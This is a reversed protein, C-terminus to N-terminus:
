RCAITKSEGPELSVTGSVHFNHFRSDTSISAKVACETPNHLELQWTSMDSALTLYCGVEINDCHVPHGIFLDKGSEADGLAVYATGKEVPVLRIRGDPIALVASRNDSLGSLRLGLTGPLDGLGDFTEVIAGDMATADRIVGGQPAFVAYKAKIERAYSDPDTVGKHMGCLVAKFECTTGKRAVSPSQSPVGFKSREFRVETLPFIALSGWQSDKAVLCDGPKMAFTKNFANSITEGDIHANLSVTNKSLRLNGFYALSSGDSPAPIDRKLTLTQEWQYPVIGDIKPLFLSCRATTEAWPCDEVPLLSRWVHIVDRESLPFTGDLVRDAVLANASAVVRRPEVHPGGARGAVFESVWGISAPKEDGYAISPTFKVQPHDDPSGDFGGSGGIGWKKDFVFCGVPRVRGTWPGKDCLCTEGGRQMVFPPEGNGRKQTSVLYQNMRDGCNWESFLQTVCGAARTFAEGGMLDWAKVWYHHQRENALTGSIAFEKRGNGQWRRVLRIGDWLEVAGVGRRSKVTLKFPWRAFNPNYLRTGDDAPDCRPLKLEVSPGSSVSYCGFSGMRPYGSFITYDTMANRFEALGNAGIQSVFTGEGLGDVSDMLELAVPMLAQNNDNNIAFADIDRVIDVGNVRTVVGLSMAARIDTRRYPSNKLDYWGVNGNFGYAGYFFRLETCSGGIASGVSSGSASLRKGDASLFKAGPYIPETTFVFERNGDENQITYGGWATFNKDTLAACEGQLAAFAEPTLHSFDELFVIFDHGLAKAKAVYEAPTSRGTSYTTRPGIVGRFLRYERGYAAEGAERSALSPVAGADLTESNGATWSFVEATLMFLDSKPRGEVGDFLMPGMREAVGQEATNQFLFSAGHMGWWCVRGRGAKKVAVVPYDSSFPMKSRRSDLFAIGTEPFPEGAVDEGASLVCRWGNGLKCAQISHLTNFSYDAHLIVNKARSKSFIRDTYIMKKGRSGIQFYKEPPVVPSEMAIGGGFAELLHESLGICSFRQGMRNFVVLGGGNEVYAVLADFVEKDHGALSYSRGNGIFLVLRAAALDDRTLDDQTVCRQRGFGEEALGDLLMRNMTELKRSPLDSVILMTDPAAFAALGQRM